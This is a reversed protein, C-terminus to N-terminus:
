IKPLQIKFCAGKFKKNKLEFEENSARIFGKLHKEIIDKSIYLGIGTGQSQHKTTFYPDFIKDMLEEKIGGANDCIEIVNDTQTSYAKIKLYKKEIKNECLADKANTLINLFVQSLENPLGFSLLPSEEYEQFIEIHQNKYSADTIHIAKQMIELIDIQVLTKNQTFFNRFDEITHSLFDVYKIIDIYSKDIDENSALNLKRQLQMSSVTSSIASLPQRWQHAINGIMEGMSAFRSQQILQKDRQRNIEVEKKIKQELNENLKILENTKEHVMNELNDNLLTLKTQAYILDTIDNLSVVVIFTDSDIYNKKATITFYHLEDKHYMAVKHIKDTEGIIYDYWRKEDGYDMDTIYEDDNLDVFFNCICAHEKNFDEFNNYGDFFEILAENSDIMKEGDSVVVINLQADLIGRIFKEQRKLDDMSNALDNNLNALKKNNRHIQQTIIYGFFSVLIVILAVTFIELNVYHDKQKQITKELNYLDIEGEFLLRNANEGMRTFYSPMTKYFRKIKTAYQFYQEKDEQAADRQEILTVIQQTMETLENLKPVIDIAELSVNEKSNSYQVTKITNLHGEINLRIYHQYTGGKNLVTLIDKITTIRQNIKATIFERGKKNTTITALEYFDARIEYLDTVIYEGLQIKAKLNLTKKDLKEILNMFFLHITILSIIGLFFVLILLILKKLTIPITNM